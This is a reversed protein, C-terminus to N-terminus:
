HIVIYGSRKREQYLVVQGPLARDLSKTIPDASHVNFFSTLLSSGLRSVRNSLKSPDINM